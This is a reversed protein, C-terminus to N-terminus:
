IRVVAHDNWGAGSFGKMSGIVRLSKSKAVTVSASASSLLLRHPTVIGNIAKIVAEASSAFVGDNLRPLRHSHLGMTERPRADGRTAIADLMQLGSREESHTSVAHKRAM